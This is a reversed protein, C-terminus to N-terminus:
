RLRSKMRPVSAAMRRWTPAKRGILESLKEETRLYGILLAVLYIIALVVTPYVPDILLDAKTFAFWSTAAAGAIAALGVVASLLAGIRPLLVILGVGVAMAFLTEAGEAWDPRVLYDNHLIEDILQAHIEVGPVDPSLPTAQRDNIVGEASTGILVINGRILSPAFSGSLIDKASTFLDAPPRSFHLAVRGARDTTIILPGIRIDTLGTNKGFSREAQAGASRGIYTTAHTVVRLIEADLSPYPKGNLSLILPIRRVVNDWDLHQNLLGNGAAAAEFEFLNPVAHSFRDVYKLPDNGVFAFGAKEAPARNGGHNVLIFGTVVPMSRM